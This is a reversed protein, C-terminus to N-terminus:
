ESKATDLTVLSNQGDSNATEGATHSMFVGATAKCSGAM